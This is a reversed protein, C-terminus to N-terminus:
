DGYYNKLAKIIKETDQFRDKSNLLVISLFPSRDLKIIMLLCEGAEETSGTKAGLIINKYKPLLLNTTWLIKGNINVKELNSLAFIEPAKSFIKESLLYLDHATSTNEPSIGTPDVFQTNNMGFEKAKQNMLNIFNELGYSKALLYIADNSSSVLSAKLADNRNIKEGIRFYGVEGPQEISEKDFVFNSEPSYLFYAIYSSMVKTLSAIPKRLHANKAILTKGGLEKILIAEASIKDLNLSFFPPEEPTFNQLNFIETKQDYIPFSTNGGVQFLSLFLLFFVM